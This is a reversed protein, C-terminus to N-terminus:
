GRQTAGEDGGGLAAGGRVAYLDYEVLLKKMDVQGIGVCQLRNIWQYRPHSTIFRPALQVTPRTPYRERLANDYGNEGLDFVGSYEGYLLAGDTTQWTTRVNPVAVGDRQILMWDAGERLISANLKPGVCAGEVIYFNKQLGRAVAGINEPPQALTVSIQGLFDLSTTFRPGVEVTAGTARAGMADAKAAGPRDVSGSGAPSAQYRLWPRQGGTPQTLAPVQRGACSLIPQIEICTATSPATCPCSPLPAAFYQEKGWMPFSLPQAPVPPVTRGNVRYQVTVVNAPHAPRAGIIVTGDKIPADETDYWLTLGDNTSEM